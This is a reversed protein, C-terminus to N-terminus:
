SVDDAFAEVSQYRESVESKLAKALITDLDGRLLRHLKPDRSVRSSAPPVDATAIAAELTAAPGRPLRYPRYGTLLEYLVVGLSYVDSAVTVRDGRIQEPSAYDPSLARGVELTLGSLTPSEERLLKAAGFDLLRVGSTPSVLINSPKLDRHLILQAHAYSVARAVQLFLELRERVSLGNEAAYSDIPSGDVYEMALYPRGNDTGADYLRAINPHELAALADREQELREAVGLAWGGRPLKIAVHRRLAGYEREALWVTGMGGAGVERLLRYPGVMTGPQDHSQRRESGATRGAPHGPFVDTEVATRALLSRLVPALPQDDVSLETLWQEQRDPPLQLVESLLADIRRWRATQTTDATNM